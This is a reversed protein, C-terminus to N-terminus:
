ALQQLNLIWKKQEGLYDDIYTFITYSLNEKKFILM